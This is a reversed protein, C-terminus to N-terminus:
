NRLEWNLIKKDCDEGGFELGLGVLWPHLSSCQSKPSMSLEWSLCNNPLVKKKKPNRNIRVVKEFTADKM